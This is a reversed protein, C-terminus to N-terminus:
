NEFGVNSSRLAKKLMLALLSAIVCKVADLAIFVSTLDVIAKWLDANAYIMYFAIGFVYICPLGIFVSVAIYRFVSDNKGKLLSVFFAAAIFGIIFGGTPSLLAGIGGRGGSFVPLGVVGLLTYLVQAALAYSPKLILAVLIVTLVQLTFPVPLIPIPVAIFASVCLLAACVAVQAMSLVSIKNKRGITKM